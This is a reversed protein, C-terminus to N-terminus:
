RDREIFRCQLSVIHVDNYFEQRNRQQRYAAYKDNGNDTRDTDNAGQKIHRMRYYQIFVQLRAEPNDDYAGSADKEKHRANSIDERGSHCRRDPARAPGLQDSLKFMRQSLLSVLQLLPDFLDQSSM